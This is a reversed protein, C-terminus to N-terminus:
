LEQRQDMCLKEGPAEMWTGKKKWEMFLLFETDNDAKKQSYAGLWRQWQKKNKLIKIFLLLYHLLENNYMLLFFLMFLPSTRAIPYTLMNFLPRRHVQQIDNPQWMNINSVKMWTSWPGKNKTIWPHTFWSNQTTHDMNVCYQNLMYSILLM